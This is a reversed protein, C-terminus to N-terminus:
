SFNRRQSTTNLNSHTTTPSFHSTVFKEIFFYNNRQVTYQEFTRLTNDINSSLEKFALELTTNQNNVMWDRSNIWTILSNLKHYDEVKLSWDVEPLSHLWDFGIDEIKQEFENVLSIYFNNPNNLKDNIMNEHQKKMNKLVNVSYKTVNDTERHHQNCLLILNEYDAREKDTMNPNYREGKENAGEIHCINSDLANNQNVLIKKCNPFSCQNGSLSFLRKLTLQTYNRAQSAM